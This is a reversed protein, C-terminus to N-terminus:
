RFVSLEALSHLILNHGPQHDLEVRLRVHRVPEETRLPLELFVPAEYRPDLKEDEFPSDWASDHAFGSSQLDLAFLRPSFDRVVADALPSWHEGDVSGELRLREPGSYVQQFDLARIVARGLHTPEALTIVISEPVGQEVTAVTPMPTLQGDTWPCEGPLTPQCSAGRSVPRSAGAPLPLRATRWEQRFTTYSWNGGVPSFAWDGLSLARLQVEPSAFDELLHPGPVWPSSVGSQRWLPEGGSFLHAIAEPTTTPVEVAELEGTSPEEFYTTRLKGSPPLAPTAPVPAFTLTPGQASDSVALRADWPQLAPLEVDGSFIFSLFTGQGNADLPLAVRFRHQIYESNPGVEEVDGWLVQLTFDGNAQTTSTGYTSFTPPAEPGDLAGPSSREVTLTAGQIPSGDANLARSYAFVPDEPYRQCGASLLPLFLLIRHAHRM